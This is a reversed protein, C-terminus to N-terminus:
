IMVFGLMKLLSYDAGPLIVDLISLIYFSTSFGLGAYIIALVIALALERRHPRVIQWCQTLASKKENICLFEDSPILLLVIGSWQKNFSNIDDRIMKGFAPDMLWIYKSTIKYIVVFHQLGNQVIHFIAPTRIQTITHGPTKVGKVRFRLQEAAEMLGQLSTGHRGTGAYQRIRSVSLHRGYYSSVSALCAAECDAADRQKIQIFKKM